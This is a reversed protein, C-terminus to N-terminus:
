NTSSFNSCRVTLTRAVARTAQRGKVAVTCSSRVSSSVPLQTITAGPRAVRGTTNLAGAAPAGAPSFVVPRTARGPAVIVCSGTVEDTRLEQM